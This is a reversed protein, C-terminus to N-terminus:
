STMEIDSCCVAICQLVSCYVAICPLVRCCVAICQLARCCMTVCQLVSCYVAVCQLVSCCVAICQLVSCCVAVCQLVSCCVAVCQLVSLRWRFIVTEVMEVSGWLSQSPVLTYATGISTCHNCYLLIDETYWVDSQILFRPSCMLDVLWIRLGTLDEFWDLSGQLTACYGCGFNCIM